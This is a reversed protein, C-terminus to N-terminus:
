QPSLKSFFRRRPSRLSFGCLSAWLINTIVRSIKPSLTALIFTLKITFLTCEVFWVLIFQDRLKGESDSIGITSYYELLLRKLMNNEVVACHRIVPMLMNVATAKDGNRYLNILTEVAEIKPEVKKSEIMLQIDSAEEAM